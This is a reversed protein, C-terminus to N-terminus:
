RPRWPAPSAHCRVGTLPACDTCETASAASGSRCPGARALGLKVAAPGRPLNLGLRRRSQLLQELGASGDTTRIEGLDRRRASGLWGCRLCIRFWEIVLAASTHLQQFPIGPRKLRTDANKRSGADSAVGRCPPVNTGHGGRCHLSKRIPTSLTSPREPSGGNRPRRLRRTCLRRVRTTGARGAGGRHHGPPRALLHSGHGPCNWPRNRYALVAREGPRIAACRRFAFPRGAPRGKQRM